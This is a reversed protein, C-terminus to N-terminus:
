QVASLHEGSREPWLELLRVYDDLFAAAWESSYFDTRYRFELNLSDAKQRVIFRLGGRPIEQIPVRVPRIDLNAVEPLGEGDEKVLDFNLYRPVEVNGFRHRIGYQEPSLKRTILAHPIEQHGLAGLVTRAERKACELLTPDGALDTRLVTPTALYGVVDQMARRGRNALSGFVAIDSAAADDMTSLRRSRVVIKLVSSLVAFLSIGGSRAAADLALFQEAPYAAKHMALAPPLDSPEFPDVLGSAPIADVGKLATRWYGLQKELLEGQLCAREWAAYDAFQLPLDPMDGDSLKAEREYLALLDRQILAASHGDVLIHDVVMGLVHDLDSIRVLVARFLPGRGLDFPVAATDGLIELAAALGRDPSEAEVSRVALQIDHGDGIALRCGESSEPFTVRLSEHRQVLEAVARELVPTDLPGLFRLGIGITNNPVHIGRGSLLREEQTFSAPLWTDRDIPTLPPRVPM